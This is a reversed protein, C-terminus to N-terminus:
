DCNGNEIGADAKGSCKSVSILFSYFLRTMGAFAPVWIAPRDPCTASSPERKRPFSLLLPISRNPEIDFREIAITSRLPTKKTLMM